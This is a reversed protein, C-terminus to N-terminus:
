NIKKINIWFGEKASSRIKIAGARAGKPVSVAEGALSPVWEDLGEYKVEFAQNTEILFKYDIYPGEWTEGPKLWHTAMLTGNEKQKNKIAGANEIKKKNDPKEHRDNYYGKAKFLIIFIILALASKKKISKTVNM